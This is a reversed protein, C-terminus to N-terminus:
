EGGCGAAEPPRDAGPDIMKRHRRGRGGPANAGSSGVPLNGAEAGLRRGGGPGLPAGRGMARREKGDAL